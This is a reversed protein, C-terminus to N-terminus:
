VAVGNECSQVKTRRECTYMVGKQRTYFLVFPFSAIGDDDVGERSRGLSPSSVSSLLSPGSGFEPVKKCGVKNAEGWSDLYSM